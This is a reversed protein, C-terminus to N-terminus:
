DSGCIFRKSGIGDFWVRYGGRESITWIPDIIVVDGLIKVRRLKSLSKVLIGHGEFIAFDVFFTCIYWFEGVYSLSVKATGSPSLM